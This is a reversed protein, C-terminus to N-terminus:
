FGLTDIALPAHAHFHRMAKRLNPVQLFNLLSIAANRLTAMMRPGNKTRIQSRDEDYTTDRVHHLRNEIGWHGRMLALLREPDAESVSISTVGCVLETSLKSPKNRFREERTRRLMFV